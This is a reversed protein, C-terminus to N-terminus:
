VRGAAPGGPGPTPLRAARSRRAPIPYRRKARILEDHLRNASKTEMGEYFQFTTDHSRHGLLRRPTEYDGPRADVHLKAALHRMLHPSFAIGLRDRVMQTIQRSLTDPRKARGPDGPFLYPSPESELMPKVRELYRRVLETSDTPLLYQLSQDNKVENASLLIVAEGQRQSPLRLHRDTRLGALNEVRMPAHILIELAILLSLTVADRRRLTRNAGLLRAAEVPPFSLFRTLVAEDDFQALRSRNENTMGVVHRNLKATIHDLSALETPPMQLHYKAISRITHVIQGATRTNTKDPRERDLFFRLGQKFHECLVALSVIQEIPMGTLCLASAFQRIQYRKTRISSPRLPRNPAADDLLDISAMSGLRQLYREVEEQFSVPFASLPLTYTEAYCPVTLPTDPWVPIRARAYNWARCVTQHTTRPPKLLSTQELHELYAQAVANSVADPENGAAACFRAFPALSSRLYRDRLQDFLRQWPASLAEAVPRNAPKVGALRLARNLLSRVNAFRAPAVGVAQPALTALHRRLSAPATPIRELPRGLWSGLSRIASATERVQRPDCLCTTTVFGLLAALDHPPDAPAPPPTTQM